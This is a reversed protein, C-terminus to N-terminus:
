FERLAERWLNRHYTSINEGSLERQKLRKAWSKKDADFHFTKRLLEIADLQEQRTFVKLPKTPEEKKRAAVADVLAETVRPWDYPPCWAHASCLRGNGADTSWLNPCGHAACNLNKEVSLDEQLRKIDRFM